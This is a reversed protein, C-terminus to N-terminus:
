ALPPDCRYTGYYSGCGCDSDINDTTWCWGDGFNGNGTPEMASVGGTIKNLNCIEDNEFKKFLDNSIKEM